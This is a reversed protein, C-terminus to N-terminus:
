TSPSSNNDKEKNIEANARYVDKALKLLERREKRGKQSFAEVLDCIFDEWDDKGMAASCFAKKIFENDVKLIKAFGLFDVLEFNTFYEMLKAEMSNEIKM